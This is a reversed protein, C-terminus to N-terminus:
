EREEFIAKKLLNYEEDSAKSFERIMLEFMAKNEEVRNMKKLLRTLKIADQRTFKICLGVIEEIRDMAFAETKERSERDYEFMVETWPAILRLSECDPVGKTEPPEPTKEEDEFPNASAEEQKPLVYEATKLGRPPSFSDPEVPAYRTYESTQYYLEYRSHLPLGNNRKIFAEGREMRHLLYDLSIVPVDRSVIFDGKLFAEPDPASTKGLSDRFKVATELDNGGLFIQLDCNDMMTEYEYPYRAKLQSRSQVIMHMFINSGRGTALLNSYVSSPRLTAFEDMVFHIPIELSKSRQHSLTLLKTILQGVCINLYDRNAEHSVDFVLFLVRSRKMFDEAELTHYRSIELIKPDSYRSLYLDVFGLYNARTIDANHIVSYAYSCALSLKDRTTFFGGDDFTSGRSEWHFSNYIKIITEFGIMEPTTRIRGTRRSEAESLTLDEMLGLVIGMIFSRATREWSPDKMSEVPCLQEFLKKMDSIIEDRLQKKNRKSEAELWSKALETFPNWFETTHKPDLINLVSVNKKGYLECLRSYTARTVEGKPDAIVYSQRPDLNFATNLVVGQTKGSGSSAVTLTHHNYKTQAIWLEGNGDRFSAVPFGFPRDRAGEKEGYPFVYLSSCGKLDEVTLLQTHEIGPLEKVYSEALEWDLMQRKIM